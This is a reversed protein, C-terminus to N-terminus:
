GEFYYLGLVLREREPLRSIADHLLQRRKTRSPRRRRSGRRDPVMDGASAGGREPSLMQDLAVMGLNSIEALADQLDDVEMAM